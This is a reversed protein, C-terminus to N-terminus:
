LKWGIDRPKPIGHFCVVRANTPVFRNMVHVKYSVIQEPVIDQWKTTQSINVVEEIFGQDGRAGLKQTWGGFNGRFLDYFKINSKGWGMIGSGLGDHRYFDRLMILDSQETKRAIDSLDGTIITDLDFFLVPGPLKFLEMKSWWGPWNHELPIKDCPVEVDSLCVFKHEEKLHQYVGAHLRSVDEQNYVGGSRLVCAVTLM